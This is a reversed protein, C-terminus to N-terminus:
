GLKMLVFLKNGDGNETELKDPIKKPDARDKGFCVLLKGDKILYRAYQKVKKEFGPLSTEFEIIGSDKKWELRFTGVSGFQNNDYAMKCTGQTVDFLLAFLDKKRDSAPVEKGDKFAKEVFWLGDLAERNTKPEDKGLTPANSPSGSMSSISCGFIPLMMTVFSLSQLMTM